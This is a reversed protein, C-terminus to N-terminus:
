PPTSGDQEHNDIRKKNVLTPRSRPPPEKTAMGLGAANPSKYCAVADIITLIAHRIVKPTTDFKRAVEIAEPSLEALFAPLSATGIDDGLISLRVGLIRSLAALKHKRPYSGGADPSKEWNKVSTISVSMAHALDDLTMNKQERALRIQDHLEM